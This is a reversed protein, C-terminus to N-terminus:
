LKANFAPYPSDLIKMDTTLLTMDEVKAQAVLMTDFPDKQPLKVDMIQDVHSLNVPLELCKLLSYVEKAPLPIRLKGSRVKIIMEWISVVSIYLDEEALIKRARKGLREPYKLAWLVVSTDLLYNM